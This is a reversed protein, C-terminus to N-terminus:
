RHSCFVALTLQSIERPWLKLSGMHKKKMTENTYKDKYAIGVLSFGETNVSYLILFDLIYQLIICDTLLIIIIIKRHWKMAGENGHALDTTLM